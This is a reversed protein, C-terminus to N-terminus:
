GLRLTHIVSSGTTYVLSRLAHRGFLLHSSTRELDTALGFSSASTLFPWASSPAVSVIMFDRLSSVQVDGAMYAEGVAPNLSTLVHTCWSKPRLPTCGLDGSRCPTQTLESSSMSLTSQKCFSAFGSITTLLQSIFARSATRSDVM